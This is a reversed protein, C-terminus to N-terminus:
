RTPLLFAIFALYKLLILVKALCPIRLQAIKKHVTDIILEAFVGLAEVNSVDKKQNSSFRHSLTRKARRQKIVKAM